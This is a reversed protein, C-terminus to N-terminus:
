KSIKDNVKIYTHFVSSRCWNKDRPTALRYRVVHLQANNAVTAVEVDNAGDELDYVDEDYEVGDRDCAEEIFLSM